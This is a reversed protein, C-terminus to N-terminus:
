RIDFSVISMQIRVITYSRRLTERHKRVKEDSTAIKPQSPDQSCILMREKTRQERIQERIARREARQARRTEREDTKREMDVTNEIASGNGFGTDPGM